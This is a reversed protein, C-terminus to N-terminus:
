HHASEVSSGIYLAALMTFIYAQLFAVLLELTSIFLTMPVSLGAWGVHQNVFIIGILSVVIIHGATINAFLRIMLAMPKIFIGAIEIPVLIPYLWVPADPLLIHKWFPAKSSAMQIIFTIVALLMTISISGTLNPNSLFPILGLLNGFLIFFFLTLLFPTFRKYKDGEINDKAIDQVFVVGPEAWKAIGKPPANGGEKYTRASKIFLFLMLGAVLFLTVINKTISLDYIVQHANTPHHEEDMEIHEAGAELQYIKEHLKVFKMGDKEVIHHGSDDHHFASSMFTVLGNDTWLIIPLPITFGDAIHIDHADLAHHIAYEAANFEEIEEKIPPHEEHKAQANVTLISLLLFGFIRKM